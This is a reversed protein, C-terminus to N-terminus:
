GENPDEVRLESVLGNRVTAYWRAPGSLAEVASESRGTALVRGEATIDVSDFVNRYGPFAEFFSAWVAACAERGDVSSGASDVFRHDDSMLSTLGALDARNIAENFDVVVQTEM